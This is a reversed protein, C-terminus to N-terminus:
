RAFPLGPNEDSPTVTVAVKMTQEGGGILVGRLPSVDLFDRGQLSGKRNVTAIM